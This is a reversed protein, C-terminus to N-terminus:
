LRCIVWVKLGRRTSHTILSSSVSRDEQVQKHLRCSKTYTDLSYIFACSEEGKNTSMWFSGQRTGVRPWPFCDYRMRPLESSSDEGSHWQRTSTLPSLVQDPLIMNSAFKTRSALPHWFQPRTESGIQGKSLERREWWRPFSTPPSLPRVQSNLNNLFTVCPVHILLSSSLLGSVPVWLGEKGMHHFNLGKQQLPLQFGHVVKAKSPQTPPRTPSFESKQLHSSTPVIESCLEQGEACGLPRHMKPGAWHTCELVSGALLDALPLALTHAQTNWPTHTPSTLGALLM